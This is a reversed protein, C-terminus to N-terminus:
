RLQEAPAFRESDPCFKKTVELNWSDNLFDVYEDEIDPIVGESVCRKYVGCIYAKGGM